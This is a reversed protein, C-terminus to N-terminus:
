SLIVQASKKGFVQYTYKINNKKVWEQFSKFVNDKWGYYSIYDDLLIITGKQFHKIPINNLIDNTSEYTDCDIHMFAIKEDSRKEFFKPVTDKFWGTVLKANVDLQPTQGDLNFFKKAVIGGPWTEQLGEFSDFGYWTIDKKYGTFFNLSEGEFVGFELHLGNTEIADAAQKWWGSDTIVPKDGKISKIYEVAEKIAEDRLVDIPWKTSPGSFM